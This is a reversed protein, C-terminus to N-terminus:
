QKSLGSLAKVAEAAEGVASKVAKSTPRGYGLAVHAEVLKAVYQEAENVAAQKTM